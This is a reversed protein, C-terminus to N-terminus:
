ALIVVDHNYTEALHQMESKGSEHEGQSDFHTQALQQHYLFLALSTVIGKVKSGWVYNTRSTLHVNSVNLSIEELQNLYRIWFFPFVHVLSFRLGEYQLQRWCPFTFVSFIKEGWDHPWLALCDGTLKTMQFYKYPMLIYIQGLGCHLTIRYM